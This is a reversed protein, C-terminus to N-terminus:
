KRKYTIKNIGLQNGNSLRTYGNSHFQTNLQPAIHGNLYDNILCKVENVDEKKIRKHHDIVNYQFYLGNTRGRRMDLVVVNLDIAKYEKGTISIATRINVNIKLRMKLWRNSITMEDQFLAKIIKDKM